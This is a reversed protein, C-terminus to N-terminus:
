GNALAEEFAAIINATPELGVSVRLLNASVGCGEAWELETYHALLTYPCAMTFSTGFSPGKSVRLADYVKPTKKENKLVFSLLGGFGGGKRMVKEYNERQTLSPHWVQAVAPHEALWAALAVGNANVIKNRKTYGKINSLLVEADAIYLPSSETSDARLSERLANAVPSDARVSVMGAMVDGAGSIWKTLSGTVVDAYKLAEVNLPGAASDDVILPTNGDQCAKAVRHLDVTRLLPNSPVETFVGAFEGQRIRMLAEDFSEGTADNLYVVGHGFLEQVKLSDVYPFEMQLTKKGEHLGPLARLVATVAAMGSTFIFTDEPAAGTYKAVARSILHSKSGERMNGDLFDQAQRSSVVEGAFRWYNNADQKAKAPVVLVQLGHFSTIRVATEAQLEVWRHARQVSARTPLVIVEENESAVEAKAAAFLREVVPHKFFRPYGTRMRKVVKQRGEEYGVIASWTPLCVSCAHPSDPLPLGLDEEQWAPHASLDRTM